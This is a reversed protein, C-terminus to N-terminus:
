RHHESSDVHSRLSTRFLSQANEYQDVINSVEALPTVFRQSLLLFAVFTGPTLNGTLLLPAEGTALWWGGVVFTAAFSLGALLEMGPRYVYNLRLMAM